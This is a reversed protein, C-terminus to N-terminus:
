SGFYLIDTPLCGRTQASMDPNNLRLGDRGLYEKIQSTCVTKFNTLDGGTSSEIESLISVKFNAVSRANVATDLNDSTVFKSM